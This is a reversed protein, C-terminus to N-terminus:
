VGSTAFNDCPAPTKSIKAIKKRSTSAPRRPRRGRRAPLLTSAQGRRSARMGGCVAAQLFPSLVMGPVRGMHKNLIRKTRKKYSFFM